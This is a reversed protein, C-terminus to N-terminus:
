CAATPSCSSSAPSTRTASPRSSPSRSAGASSAATRGRASSGCSCAARSPRSAPTSSASRTRPSGRSRAACAAPASTRRTACAGGTAGSGSSSCRPRCCRCRAPSARSTPSSRTPRARARRAPRRAAGPREVARRLEDRRMPASSCTTPPSCRAVAGPLGRLARLLRGPARARRRVGARTAPPTCSSPSSRPASRRTAAPPSRRRSSTSRSCSAATTASAGRRARDLERLPHEGPRILVQAWDDSGPLVGSALAPLLGARLVSSKGSGSPGVVGLLPAGVLRAVLEAVLRERGFFYQADDVDFSALGKFPCVVRRTTTARRGRGRQERAAQLEVVDGALEAEISRLEAAGPRPARRGGRRRAAGGRAAGM